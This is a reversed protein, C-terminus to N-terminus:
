PDTGLANLPRRRPTRESKMTALLVVASSRSQEPNDVVELRFLVTLGIFAFLWAAPSWPKAPGRKFICAASRLMHM